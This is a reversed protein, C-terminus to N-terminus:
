GLPTDIDWYDHPKGCYDLFRECDGRLEKVIQLQSEPKWRPRETVPANLVHNRIAVRFSEPMLMKAANYALGIGPIARLMSVSRRRIRKDSSRNLHSISVDIPAEADVGLFEFTRSLVSQRDAIFDEFFLVLIQEDPFFRRYRELQQWYKTSEVLWDHNLRLARDFNAHVTEDGWTRMELWGSEIRKLPHRAIFVLKLAPGYSAIRRATDPYISDLTYLPSGEGRACCDGAERYFSEYWEPGKAFLEDYAFFNTEKPETMFVGPHSGLLACLSTTGAKAAGIVLFTPKM